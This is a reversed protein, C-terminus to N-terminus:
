ETTFKEAWELSIKKEYDTEHTYVEKAMSEDTWGFWRFYVNSPIGADKFNTAATHRFDKMTFDIKTKAKILKYFYRIQNIRFNFLNENGDRNKILRELIPKLPPMIPMTRISGRTKTGYILLENPLLIMNRVPKNKYELNSITRSEASLNIYEVLTRTIEDYRCGTYLYFKIIDKEIENRAASIILNVEEKNLARGKVQEYAPKEVLTMISIGGTRDKAKELALKLISYMGKATRGHAISNLREQIYSSKLDKLKMNNFERKIRRIMSLDMIITNTSLETGEKPKRFVNHWHDLWAFLTFEKEKKLKPGKMERYTKMLKNYVYQKDLRCAVRIQKGNKMIRAEWNNDCKRQFFSCGKPIYYAM